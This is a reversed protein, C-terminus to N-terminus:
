DTKESMWLQSWQALDDLIPLLGQGKNTLQYQAIHENQSLPIREIIEEQELFKLRQTLTTPNIDGVLSQLECFRKPTRLRHIIKLTWRAGLIRSIAEVPCTETNTNTPM